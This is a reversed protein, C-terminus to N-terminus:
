VNFYIMNYLIDYINKPTPGNKIFLAVYWMDFPIDYQIDYWIDYSLVYIM